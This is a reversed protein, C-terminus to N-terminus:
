FIFFQVSFILITFGCAPLTRYSVVFFPLGPSANVFLQIYYDAGNIIFSHGHDVIVCFSSIKLVFCIRDFDFLFM